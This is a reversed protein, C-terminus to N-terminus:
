EKNAMGMMRRIRASVSSDVRLEFIPNAVEFEGRRKMAEQKGRARSQREREAKNKPMEGEEQESGLLFDSEHKAIEDLAESFGYTRQRSRFTLKDGRMELPLDRELLFRSMAMSFNLMVEERTGGLDVRLNLGRETDIFYVGRKAQIIPIRGKAIVMMDSKFPAAEIGMISLGILAQEKKGRVALPRSDYDILRLFLLYERTDITIGMKTKSFYLDRPSIENLSSLFSSFFNTSSAITRGVLDRQINKSEELDELNFDTEPEGEEDAFDNVINGWFDDGLDFNGYDESNLSMEEEDLTPLETVEDTVRITSNLWMQDLRAHLTEKLWDPDVLEIAILEEFTAPRRHIWSKQFDYMMEHEWSEDTTLDSSSFYFSYMKTKRKGKVNHIEVRGTKSYIVKFDMHEVDHTLDMDEVRFEFGTGKSVQGELNFRPGSKTQFGAWNLSRIEAIIIKRNDMINQRTKSHVILRGSMLSISFTARTTVLKLVCDGV